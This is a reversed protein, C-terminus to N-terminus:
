VEEDGDDDDDDDGLGGQLMANAFTRMFSELSAGEGAGAEDEEQCPCPFSGIRGAFYHQGCEFCHANRFDGQCDGFGKCHDCHNHAKGEDLGPNSACLGALFYKMNCEGNPCLIPARSGEPDGYENGGQDMQFIFDRLRVTIKTASGDPMECTQCCDEVVIQDLANDGDLSLVGREASAKVCGCVKRVRDKGVLQELRALVAEQAANLGTDEEDSSSEDDEMAKTSEDKAAASPTTNDAAASTTAKNTESETKNSSMADTLRDSPDDMM